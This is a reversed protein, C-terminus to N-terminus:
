IDHVFKHCRVNEIVRSDGFVLVADIPELVDDLPYAVEAGVHMVVDVVDYGFSVLNRDAYRVVTGVCAADPADGV